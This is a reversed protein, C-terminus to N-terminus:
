RVSTIGGRGRLINPIKRGDLLKERKKKVGLFAVAMYSGQPRM